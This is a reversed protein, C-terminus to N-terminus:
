EASPRPVYGPEARAVERAYGGSLGIVTRSGYWRLEAPQAYWSPVRTPRTERETADTAQPHTAAADGAGSAAQYPASAVDVAEPAVEGFQKSWVSMASRRAGTASREYGVWELRRLRGRTALTWAHLWWRPRADSITVQFQRVVANV